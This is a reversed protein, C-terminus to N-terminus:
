MNLYENMPICEGTEINMAVDNEYMAKFDQYTLGFEKAFAGIHKRTTASYTGTCWAFGTHDVGAVDTTYSTLIVDGEATYNKGCSGNPCYELREDYYVTKAFYGDVIQKKYM